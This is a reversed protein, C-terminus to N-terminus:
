PRPPARPTGARSLPRHVTGDDEDDASVLPLEVFVEPPAEAL